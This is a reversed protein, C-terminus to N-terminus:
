GHKAEAAMFEETFRGRYHISSAEGRFGVVGKDVDMQQDLVRGADLDFRVTGSTEYQLLQSELAPDDIPTLIQTTVRISAVGTQVGQLTFTQLSQFQRVGGGPLPVEIKHPFSWQHGVAVAEEPLPITLEGQSPVAAKIPNQKREIVRGKSTM